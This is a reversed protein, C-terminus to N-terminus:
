RDTLRLEIRRDKAYAEPSDGPEFPQYEAFGAAALRNAPVGAAILLKVVTIARAVSLEWNSAFQGGRLPQPDTHGDVRLLWNVDQPIEAAIQKITDALATMQTIGAPSLEASGRPFLVESQFVFRDGVIQIGPRNELVSRLRGFFESRYRELLRVKEALVVNLREGLDAITADKNTLDQKSVDLAKAITTLQARLEMIERRLQLVEARAAESLKKEAALDSETATRKGAETNLRAETEQLRRELDDRLAKLAQAQQALDALESLRAEITDKSVTVTKDLAAIQAQMEALRAQAAQLLRQTDSLQARATAEDKATTSLQGTLTTVQTRLAAADKEAADARATAAALQRLAEALEARVTAEDRAKSDLQGTLGTVKGQLDVASQEAAEARRTVADRQAETQALATKYRDAAVSTADYALRADSLQATLRDRETNLRATVDRLTDLQQSLSARAQAAAALDRAAQERARTLDATRGREMTLAARLDSLEARAKDLDENRGALTAALFGQALVFVLLVFIIVMLLTSLADVYGPWADLGNGHQRRIRGAM